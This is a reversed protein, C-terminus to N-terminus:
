KRFGAAVWRVTYVMWAIVLPTLIALIAQNM